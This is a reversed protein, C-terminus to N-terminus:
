VGKAVLELCREKEEKTIRRAKSSKAIGERKRMDRWIASVTAPHLGFEEAVESHRKNGYLAEVQEKQEKNLKKKPM